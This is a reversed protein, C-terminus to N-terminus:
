YDDDEDDEPTYYYYEEAEDDYDYQEVDVNVIQFKLGFEIPSFVGVGGNGTVSYNGQSDQEFTYNVGESYVQVDQGHRQVNVNGVAQAKQVTVTAM